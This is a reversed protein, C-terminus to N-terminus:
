IHILSLIINSGFKYDSEDRLELHSNENLLLDLNLNFNKKRTNSFSIISQLNSKSSVIRGIIQNDKIQLDINLNNPLNIIEIDDDISILCISNKSNSM